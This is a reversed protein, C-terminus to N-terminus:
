YHNTHHRRHILHCEAEVLVAMALMLFVEIACVLVEPAVGVMVGRRGAMAPLM